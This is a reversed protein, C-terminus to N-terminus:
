IMRRIFQTHYKDGWGSLNEDPNEDEDNCCCDPCRYRDGMKYVAAGCQCTSVEQWQEESKFSMLIRGDDNKEKERDM